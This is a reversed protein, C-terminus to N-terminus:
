CVLVAVRIILYLYIKYLAALVLMTSHHVFADYVMLYLNIIIFGGFLLTVLVSYGLQSHDWYCLSRRGPYQLLIVVALIACWITRFPAVFLKAFFGDFEPGFPQNESADQEPIEIPGVDQSTRPMFWALSNHFPNLFHADLEDGPIMFCFLWYGFLLAIVHWRRGPTHLAGKVRMIIGANM